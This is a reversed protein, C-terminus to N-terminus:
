QDKLLDNYVTNLKDSIINWDREKIVWERSQKGLKFRLSSDDILLALKDALDEANDKEFLLGNYGDKVIEALATVNSSLVAKEMAMAEFPKLPSVMECVPQGKRPFPTIDVLSYYKEVEEHPVRGTFVFYKELSHEKVLDQINELVAGDGVILVAIDAINREDLLGVAEVLLELGEYEVVSGIYGIVVKDKFGLHKELVTDRARPVFRDSTVGNPLIHIKGSPVGRSVMENKLAKTLTLVVDAEIAAQTELKVMLNYYDTDKWEPQRSIRTVEWLGRVEYISKIGLSRAVYNAVLGNMHNSAAHLVAPKEKKAFALLSKAYAELYEKMPLKGLGIGDEQLRYYSIDDIMDVALSHTGPSKDEPYGLRSVGRIDWGKKAINTLLGHTRTAYGGSNYPLRNHLLYLVRNKQPVYGRSQDAVSLQFGNELLGLLVNGTKQKIKLQPLTFTDPIVALAKRIHGYRLYLDYMDRIMREDKKILLSKGIYYEAKEYSKDLYFRFVVKYLDALNVNPKKEMSEIARELGEEDGRRYLIEWVEVDKKMEYQFLVDQLETDDVYLTVLKAISLVSDHMGLWELRKILVKAFRNEEPHMSIYREGLVAALRPHIDKLIAFALHVLRSEEKPFRELLYNVVKELTEEPVRRAIKMLREKKIRGLSLVSDQSLVSFAKKLSGHRIHLFYLSKRLFDNEPNLSLSKMAYAVSKLYSKDLYFQYLRQYLEPLKTSYKKELTDISAQLLDIKNEEYLTQCKRMETNFFSHKVDHILMRQLELMRNMVIPQFLVAKSIFIDSANQWLAFGIEVKKVGRPILLHKSINTGSQSVEIYRFYGVHPSVSLRNVLVEEESLTKDNFNFFMLCANRKEEKELSYIFFNLEYTQVSSVDFSFRLPEKQLQIFRKNHM